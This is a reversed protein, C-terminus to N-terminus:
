LGDLLDAPLEEATEAVVDGREAPQQVEKGLSVDGSGNRIRVPVDAFSPLDLGDPYVSLRRDVIMKVIFAAVFALVRFPM